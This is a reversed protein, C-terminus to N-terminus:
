WNETIGGVANGKVIAWKLPLDSLPRQKLETSSIERRRTRHGARNFCVDVLTLNGTSKEILIFFEKSVAVFPKREGRPLSLLTKDVSLTM